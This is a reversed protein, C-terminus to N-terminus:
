VGCPKHPGEKPERVSVFRMSQADCMPNQRELSCPSVPIEAVSMAVVNSDMGRLLMPPTIAHERLMSARVNQEYEDVM